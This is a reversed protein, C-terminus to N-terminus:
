AIKKIAPARPSWPATEDMGGARDDRMPRSPPVIAEQMKVVTFTPEM